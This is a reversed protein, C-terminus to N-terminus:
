DGRAIGDIAAHTEPWVTNVEQAAAMVGPTNGDRAATELDAFAHTLDNAGVLLTENRARHAADAVTSLDTRALARELRKLQDAIVSAANKAISHLEAESFVRLQALRDADL